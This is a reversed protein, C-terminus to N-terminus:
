GVVDFNRFVLDSSDSLNVRYLPFKCMASNNAANSRVVTTANTTAVPKNITPIENASFPM